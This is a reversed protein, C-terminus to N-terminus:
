SALELSESLDRTTVRRLDRAESDKYRRGRHLTCRNNWIVLDGPKWHHQYVFRPQTAHETLDMILVRGEPVPWGVVHTAHAGMYLTKRGSALLRRVLRHQAPPLKDEEEKVVSPFGLQRGSHMYEHELTLDEITEKMEDSLADYAARLDAFETEGGTPPVVYAFLMSLAGPISRFSADSHWVMNRMKELRRRDDRARVNNNEDLNSVDSIVKSQIRHKNDSRIFRPSEEPEGFHRAFNAQTEDDLKQGRFIVVAYDDIAKQIAQVSKDDLPQSIDIGTIEAAFGNGNLRIEM